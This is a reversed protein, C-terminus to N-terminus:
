KSKGSRWAANKASVDAKAEAFSAYRTETPQGSKLLRYGSGDAVFWYPAKAM